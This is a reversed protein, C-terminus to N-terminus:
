ISYLTTWPYTLSQLQEPATAPRDVISLSGPSVMSWFTLKRHPAIGPYGPPAVVQLWKGGLSQTTGVLGPAPAKTTM